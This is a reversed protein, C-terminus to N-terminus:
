TTEVTKQSNRLWKLWLILFFVMLVLPIVGLNVIQWGFNHQLAGSLFSSAAVVSFVMFDNLGQVKAKEAPQFAETLLTTGGVFLFNWGLGLLVLGGFFQAIEIGSFSIGVSLLYAAVGALMVNLVGFRSILSGTFFSPVFMGLVHWQIIFKVDSFVYGCFDMAIPTATMIFTMVGYGVMGGAVAVIFVPQKVIELLPRGKGSSEEGSPKPIEVFFLPILTSSKLLAIAVFSGAFVVPAFYDKSLLAIEPGLIAAVVGGGLVLSIAKSRFKPSATDAAAHRYFLAFGQFSGIFASAICFLVFHEEFIAYAAALSGAVGLFVGLTLGARRGVKRMLLSAPLTTMMTATFQIALPLTAYAKDSALMLGTLATVTMNVTMGTNSVAQCIALLIVNKVTPDRGTM